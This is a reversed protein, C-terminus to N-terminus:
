PSAVLLRVFAMEAVEQLAQGQVFVLVADINGFGARFQLDLEELHESLMTQLIQLQDECLSSELHALVYAHDIRYLPDLVLRLLQHQHAVNRGYEELM